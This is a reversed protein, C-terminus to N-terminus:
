RRLEDRLRGASQLVSNGLSGGANRELDVYASQDSRSVPLDLEPPDRATTDNTGRFAEKQCWFLSLCSPRYESFPRCYHAGLWPGVSPHLLSFRLCGAAAPSSPSRSQAGRQGESAKPKASCAAGPSRQASPPTWPGRQFLTQRQALASCFSLGPTTRVQHGRPQDPSSPAPASPAPPRAVRSDAGLAASAPAHAGRLARRAQDRPAHPRSCGLRHTGAGRHTRVACPVASSWLRLWDCDPIPALRGEDGKAWGTGSSRSQGAPSAGGRSRLWARPRPLRYVM